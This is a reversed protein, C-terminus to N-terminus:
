SAAIFTSREQGGHLMGSTLGSSADLLGPIRASTTKTHGRGDDGHCKNCGKSLFAARGLAIREETLEPEADVASDAILRMTGALALSRWLKLVNDSGTRRVSGSRHWSINWSAVSLLVIVYDVVAEIEQKPLLRFNPM